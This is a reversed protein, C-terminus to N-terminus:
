SGSAKPAQRRTSAAAATQTGVDDGTGGAGGAGATGAGSTWSAKAFPKAVGVDDISGPGPKIPTGIACGLRAYVKVLTVNDQFATTIISGDDDVLVGDVSRGFTVNERIAIALYPWGGVLADGGEETDWTLSTRVPVGYLVQAPAVGPLAQAATYAARLASGIAPGAVIGTPPIGEGELFSMAADIATLADAGSVAEAFAAVGGPPFSAPAGDGFLIARDIAWAMATALEAEVQGEVDFGADMIWANPVPVVAAVEEPRIEVASWRVETVPKRGGYAPSVFSAKPRFAVIPISESAESMRLTRGMAIAISEAEIRGIFDQAVGQPLLAEYDPPATPPPDTPAPHIVPSM